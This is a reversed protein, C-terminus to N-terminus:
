EQRLTKIDVIKAENKDLLEIARDYEWPVLDGTLPNIAKYVDKSSYEDRHKVFEIM